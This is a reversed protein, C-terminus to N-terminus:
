TQTRGIYNGPSLSAASHNYVRNVSKVVREECGEPDTRILDFSICFQLQSIKEELGEAM